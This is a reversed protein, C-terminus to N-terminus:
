GLGYIKLAVFELWGFFLIMLLAGPIGTLLSLRRWSERRLWAAASLVMASFGAEIIGLWILVLVQLERQEIPIAKWRGFTIALIAVPVILSALWCWGQRGTPDFFFRM